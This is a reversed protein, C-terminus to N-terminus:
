SSGNGLQGDHNYGWCQVGGNVLACAYGGGAAIAQILTGADAISGEGSDDGSSTTADRLLAAADSYVAAEFAADRMASGSATTTGSSPKGSDSPAVDHSGVDSVDARSHARSTAHM